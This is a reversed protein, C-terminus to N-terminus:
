RNVKQLALSQNLPFVVLRQAEVAVDALVTVRANALGIDNARDKVAAGIGSCDAAGEPVGHTGPTQHRFTRQGFDPGRPGIIVAHERGPGIQVGRQLLLKGFRQERHVVVVRRMARHEAETATVPPLGAVSRIVGELASKRASCEACSALHRELGARESTPVEGDLYASLIETDAHPTM